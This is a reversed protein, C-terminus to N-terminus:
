KRNVSRQMPMLSSNSLDLEKMGGLTSRGGRQAEQAAKLANRSTFSVQNSHISHSSISSSLDQGLFMSLAMQTKMPIPSHNRKSQHVVLADMVSKKMDQYLRPYVVSLTEITEPTVTGKKVQHLAIYPDQVISYYRNFKALDAKSPPTKADFVNHGGDDPAKEALFRVATASGTGLFMAHQPAVAYIARSGAEFRDMLVEPNQNLHRINDIVKHFKTEDLNAAKTLASASKESFVADSSRIIKSSVKALAREMQAMRQIMFSPNKLAGFAALGIQGITGLGMAISGGLVAAGLQSSEPAIKQLALKYAANGALKAQLEQNKNLVSAVANKNFTKEPVAEYSKEMEDVLKKNAAQYEELLQIKTPDKLATQLKKPNLEFVVSGSKSVTKGMIKKQIESQLTKFENFAENFASQRAAGMGFHGENELTKRLDSRLGKILTQADLEEASPIKGFKIHTDVNKKLEDIAKFIDSAKREGLDKELQQSIRELKIAYREPYLAPNARIEDVTEKVRTKVSGLAAQAGPQYTDDIYRAAELPRIESFTEKVAKNITKYQDSLSTALDDGLKAAETESLAAGRQKFANLIDDTAAGSIPSSLSAYGEALNDSLSAKKFLGSAAKVSSPIAREAIGLTAGLSGGILAGFGVESMIKEANLEPDGLADEKIVNGVGYAAGEVASGLTKGAVSAIAKGGMAAESGEAIASAAKGLLGPAGIGSILSLGSGLLNSKPNRKEIESLERGSAGAMTAAKSFLGLTAMNAAGLGASVLENEFGEGFQRQLNQDIHYKDITEQSPITYGEKLAQPVQSSELNVPQGKPDVLNHTEGAKLSYQGSQLAPGLEDHNVAVIQNNSNNILNPM